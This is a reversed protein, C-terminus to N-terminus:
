IFYSLFFFICAKRRKREPEELEQLDLFSKKMDESLVHIRGDYLDRVGVPLDWSSTFLYQQLYQFIDAM